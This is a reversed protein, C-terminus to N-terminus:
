FFFKHCQIHCHIIWTCIGGVLLSINSLASVLYHRCLVIVNSNTLFCVLQKVHVTKFMFLKFDYFTDDENLGDTFCSPLWPSCPYITGVVKGIVLKKHCCDYAILYFHRLMQTTWVAICKHAACVECKWALSQKKKFLVFLFLFPLM